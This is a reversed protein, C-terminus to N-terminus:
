NMFNYTNKGFEMLKILEQEGFFYQLQYIAEGFSDPFHIINKRRDSVNLITRAESKLINQFNIINYGNLLMIESEASTYYAIQENLFGTGYATSYISGVDENTMCMKLKKVIKIKRKNFFNIITAVETELYKPKFICITYDFRPWELEKKQPMTRMKQKWTLLCKSNNFYFQETIPERNQIKDFVKKKCINCGESIALLSKLKNKSLISNIHYTTRRAVEYWSWCLPKYTTIFEGVQCNNLYSYWILAELADGFGKENKVHELNARLNYIDNTIIKENFHNITATNELYKKM